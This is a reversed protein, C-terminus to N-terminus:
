VGDNTHLEIIRKARQIVDYENLEAITVKQNRNANFVDLLVDDVWNANTTLVSSANDVHKDCYLHPLFVKRICAPSSCYAHEYKM